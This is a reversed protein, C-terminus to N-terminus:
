MPTVAGAHSLPGCPIPTSDKDARSATVVYSLTFGKAVTHGARGDDQSSNAHRAVLGSLTKFQDIRMTGTDVDTAAFMPDGNITIM